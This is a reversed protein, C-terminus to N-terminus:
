GRVKHWRKLRLRGLLFGAVGDDPKASDGAVEHGSHAVGAVRLDSRQDTTMAIFRLANCGFVVNRWAGNIAVFVEVLDGVIGGDISNIDRQWVRHMGFVGDARGFGSLM